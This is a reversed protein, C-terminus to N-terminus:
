RKSEDLGGNLLHKIMCGEPIRYFVKASAMYGEPIRYLVKDIAIKQLLDLSLM